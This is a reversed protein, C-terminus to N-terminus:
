LELLKGPPASTASDRVISKPFEAAGLNSVPMNLENGMDELFCRGHIWDWLERIKGSSSGGQCKEVMATLSQM